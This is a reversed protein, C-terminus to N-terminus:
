ENEEPDSYDRCFFWMVALGLLASVLSGTLIGLKAQTLYGAQEESRYGLTAIFLSMTFGIGALISVGWIRGWTAGKPM